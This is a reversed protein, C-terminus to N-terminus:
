RVRLTRPPSPASRSRAIYCPRGLSYFLFGGIVLPQLEFPVDHTGSGDVQSRRAVPKAPRNQQPQLCSLLPHLDSMVRMGCPRLLPRLRGAGGEDEDIPTGECEAILDISNRLPCCLRPAPEFEDM